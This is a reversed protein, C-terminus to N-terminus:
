IFMGSDKDKKEEIEKVHMVCCINKMHLLMHTRIYM